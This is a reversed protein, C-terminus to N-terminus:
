GKKEYLLGLQIETLSFIKKTEYDYCAYDNKAKTSFLVANSGAAIFDLGGTNTNRTEIIFKNDIINKIKCNDIIWDPINKDDNVRWVLIEKPYKDNKGCQIYKNEKM